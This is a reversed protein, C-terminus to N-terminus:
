TTLFPNNKKWTTGERSSFSRAGKVKEKLLMKGVSMVIEVVIFAAPVPLHAEARASHGEGWGAGWVGFLLWVVIRSFIHM